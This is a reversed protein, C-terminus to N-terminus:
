RDLALVTDMTPPNRRDFFLSASRSSDPASTRLDLNLVMRSPLGDGEILGVVFLVVVLLVLFLAFKAVGNLTGLAIGRMWRLFAIMVPFGKDNPTNAGNYPGRRLSRWNEQARPRRAR